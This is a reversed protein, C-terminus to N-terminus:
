RKMIEDTDDIDGAALAIVSGGTEKLKIRGIADVGINTGSIKQGGAFYTAENGIGRMLSNWWSPIDDGLFDPSKYFKSMAAIWDRLLHRRDEERGTIDKLAAAGSGTPNNVNLGLGLSLYVIRDGIIRAEGLIGAIKKDGVLVDNPWKGIAEVSWKERLLRILTATAGLVYRQLRWSSVGPHIVHTAWLGGPPSEWTRNRRGRGASQIESALTFDEGPHKEAIRRAEDMTSPVERLITIREEPGFEWSTLPIHGEPGLSYGHRGSRVPYGHAILSQVQKHVAVRSIGIIKGLEDGTVPEIKTRLISLLPSKKISHKENVV